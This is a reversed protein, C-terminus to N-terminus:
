LMGILLPAPGGGCRDGAEGILRAIEESSREQGRECLLVVHDRGDLAKLVQPSSPQLPRLAHIQREFLTCTPLPCLEHM